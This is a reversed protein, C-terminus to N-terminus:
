RPRAAPRGQLHPDGAPLPLLAGRLAHGAGERAPDQRERAARLPARRAAPQHGLAPLSRAHAARPVPRQDGGEGAGRRRDDRLDGGPASAGGGAGPPRRVQAGAQRCTTWAASSRGSPPPCLVSELRARGARRESADARGRGQALIREAKEFVRDEVLIPVRARLALAIADSPRSDITLARGRPRWTCSPTSSTTAFIPSWSASSRVRPPRRACEPVPRADAPAAADRGPARHRDRQGRVARDGARAAPPRAEGPPPRDAAPHEPRARRGDGRSGAPERDPRGGEAAGDRGPERTGDGDRHGADM